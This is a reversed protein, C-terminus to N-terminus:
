RILGTGTGPAMGQLARLPSLPALPILEFQMLRARGLPLSELLARARTPDTLNLVFAVGTREQLSYWQEIDGNLYLTVTERVEAPLMARVTAPDAGATLTGIALIRTTPGPVSAPQAHGTGAAGMCFSFVLAAVWAFVNKM